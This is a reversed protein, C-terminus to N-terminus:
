LLVVWDGDKLKGFHLDVDGNHVPRHNVVVKAFHYGEECGAGSDLRVPLNPDMKQLEAILDGVTEIKKETDAEPQPFDQFTRAMAAVEAYSQGEELIISSGDVTAWRYGPVDVCFHDVSSRFLLQHESTKNEHLVWWRLMRWWDVAPCGSDFTKVNSAKALDRCYEDVRIRRYESDYDIAVLYTKM